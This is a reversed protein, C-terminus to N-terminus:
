SMGGSPRDFRICWPTILGTIFCSVVMAAAGVSFYNSTLIQSLSYLGIGIMVMAFLLAFLSRHKMGTTVMVGFSFFAFVVLVLFPVGQMIQSFTAKTDLLPGITSWLATSIVCILGLAFIYLRYSFDKAPKNGDLELAKVGIRAITLDCNPDQLYSYMELKKDEPLNLDVLRNFLWQHEEEWTMKEPM